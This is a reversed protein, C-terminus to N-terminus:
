HTDFTNHPTGLAVACYVELIAQKVPDAEKVYRFGMKNIRSKADKFHQQFEIDAMKMKRTDSHGSSYSTKTRGSSICALRFAFPAVGDGSSSRRHAYFRSVINNSRGVYLHEDGDSMLYVGAIKEKRPKVRPFRDGLIPEMNM